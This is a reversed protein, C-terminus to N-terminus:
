NVEFINDPRQMFKQFKQLTRLVNETIEIQMHFLNRISRDIEIFM